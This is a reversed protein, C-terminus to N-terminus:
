SNGCSFRFESRFLVLRCPATGKPIAAFGFFRKRRTMADGPPPTPAGADPEEQSPTPLAPTPGGISVPTSSGINTAPAMAAVHSAYAIYTGASAARAGDPAVFTIVPLDARLIAKVLERMAKDLGGPTDMRLILAQAGANHADDISRIILDATAPGLAGGLDVLWVQNSSAVPAEDAAAGPSLQQLGLVLLLLGVTNTWPRMAASQVGIGRRSKKPEGPM